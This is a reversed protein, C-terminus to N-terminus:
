FRVNMGERIDHSVCFGGNVEVVFRAPEGSTFNREAFPQTNRHIRVISSDANVFIIDLSLPTNAMWFSLPEERDFIFLMGKDRPLENVDMLGQNREDPEDAVAVEITTITNGEADLFSLDRTYEVTRGRPQRNEGGSKGSGCGWIPLATVLLMLLFRSSKM